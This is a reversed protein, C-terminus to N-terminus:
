FSLGSTPTQKVRYDTNDALATSDVVGPALLAFTLYDRRNIPLNQVSEHELTNAQHTREGEVLSTEAFVEVMATTAGVELKVDVIAIQGVTVRVEKAVQTHFGEKEIQVNYLGPPLLLFRYEGLSNTNDTRALGTEESRVSAKAGPVLAGTADTVTGHLEGSAVNSQGPAQIAVLLILSAFILLRKTM